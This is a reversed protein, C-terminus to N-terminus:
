DVQLSAQMERANTLLVNMSGDLCALVGTFFTNNDNLKVEVERGLMKKLYDAPNHRRHKEM